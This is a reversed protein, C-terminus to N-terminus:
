LWMQFKSTFLHTKHCACSGVCLSSSILELNFSVWCLLSPPLNWLAVFISSLFHERYISIKQPSFSFIFDWVDIRNVIHLQLSSPKNPIFGDLLCEQETLCLLMRWYWHPRCTWWQAWLSMSYFFTTLGLWVYVALLFVVDQHYLTVKIEQM